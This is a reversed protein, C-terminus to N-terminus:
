LQPVPLRGPPHFCVPVRAITNKRFLQTLARTPEVTVTQRWVCTKQTSESREGIMKGQSLLFSCQSSFPTNLRLSKQSSSAIIFAQLLFTTFLNKNTHHKRAQLIFFFGLFFHKALHPLIRQSCLNSRLARTTPSGGFTAAMKHITEM